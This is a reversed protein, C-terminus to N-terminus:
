DGKVVRQYQGDRAALIPDGLQICQFMVHFVKFIGVYGADGAQQQQNSERVRLWSHRARRSVTFPVALGGKEALM